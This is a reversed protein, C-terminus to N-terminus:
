ALEDTSGFLLLGNWVGQETDLSIYDDNLQKLTNPFELNQFLLLSPM